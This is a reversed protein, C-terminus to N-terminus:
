LACRVWVVKGPEFLPRVGWAQVLEIILPLGRGGEAEGDEPRVVPLAAGEDWVEVCVARKAEDPFVRVVIHGVRVHKYANTVLETVVLRGVFDDAIGLARFQEVLFRRAEAPARDTPALVLTPTEPALAVASM